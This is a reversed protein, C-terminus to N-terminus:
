NGAAVVVRSDAPEVGLSSRLRQDQNEAAMFQYLKSSGPIGTLDVRPRPIQNAGILEM